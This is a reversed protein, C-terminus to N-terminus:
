SLVRHHHHNVSITVFESLVGIKLLEKVQSNNGKICANSITWISETKISNNYNGNILEQMIKIIGAEILQQVHLNSSYAVNSLIWCSEKIILSASQNCGIRYKFIPILGEEVFMDVFEDSIACLNGVIRITTTIIDEDDNLVLELLRKFNLKKIIGCIDSSGHNTLNFLACLIDKLVDDNEVHILNNFHNYIKEM